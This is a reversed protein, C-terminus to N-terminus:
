RLHGCWGVLAGLRPHLLCRLLGCSPSCCLQQLDVIGGKNTANPRRHHASVACHGGRNRQHETDKNHVRDCRLKWTTQPCKGLGPLLKDVDFPKYRQGLKDFDIFSVSRGRRNDFDFFKVSGDDTRLGLICVPNFSKARM